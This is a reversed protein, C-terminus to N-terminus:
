TAPGAPLPTKTFRSGIVRLKRNTAPAPPLLPTIVFLVGILFINTLLFALATTADLGDFTRGHFCFVLIATMMLLLLSIPILARWALMMLQDFRFRPLSWRVWMFVFIIVMTKAFFVVARLVCIVFSTTMGPDSAPGRLGPFDWGGFFLAVCVASTTIMGAYEGLFFLAFRMASYETHYGGVLEQEAEALDFPARNAEAHICVLFMIFALPQSFVNWAPIVHVWDHCQKAVLTNLDLTGYMVVICLVALGLPIEYSIMNATARLGGLFSYKNNSAWGGIVVGYVALSLVALIYLVGINLNAIQFPYRYTVQYQDGEQSSGVRVPQGVMEDGQALQKQVAEQVSVTGSPITVVRDSQKVGGWPLVAISIIIVLVMVGPAVTFLIKDAGPARYDEKLIFKVGDALPQGLGNMKMDKLVPIIGFGLGVRNPGLRDQVWSAVKRELLILYAVSLMVTGHVILAILVWAPIYTSWWDIVKEIM